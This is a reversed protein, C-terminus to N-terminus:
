RKQRVFPCDDPDNARCFVEGNGPRTKWTSLLNSGTKPTIDFRQYIDTTTLSFSDLTDPDYTDDFGLVVEYYCRM